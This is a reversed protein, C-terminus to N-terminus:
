QSVQMSSTQLTQYAVFNNGLAFAGSSLGIMGVLAIAIVKKM